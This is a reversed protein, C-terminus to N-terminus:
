VQWSTQTGKGKNLRGEIYKVVKKEGGASYLSYSERAGNGIDAHELRLSHKRTCSGRTTRSALKTSVGGGGGGGSFTVLPAM